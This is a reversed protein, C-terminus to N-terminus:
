PDTSMLVNRWACSYYIFLNDRLQAQRSLWIPQTEKRREMEQWLIGTSGGSESLLFFVDPYLKKVKSWM